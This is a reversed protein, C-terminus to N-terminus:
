DMSSSAVAQWLQSTKLCLTYVSHESLVGV